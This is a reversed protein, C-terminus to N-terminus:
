DEGSNRVLKWVEYFIWVIALGLGSLIGIPDSQYKVDLEHGVYACLAFCVASSAAFQKPSNNKSDQKM